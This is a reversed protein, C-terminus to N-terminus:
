IKKAHVTDKKGAKEYFISGDYVRRVDDKKMVGDEPWLLLYTALGILLILRLHTSRSLPIFTHRECELSAATCGFFDFAFAQGRLANAVEWITLGNKGHKDYKAFFDEFNQPRFRGEADYAMSDSGHKNKHVNEIWIRFFPDPMIGKVTPYSLAFHIIYTGFLALPWFSLPGPWERFCRWTDIPWIIGDGDRDFYDCHQQVVQISTM